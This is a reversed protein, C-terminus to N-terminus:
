IKAAKGRNCDRCLTQLNMYESNGGKSIPIIHDVELKVGDKVSRGCLCCKFGDRRMVNYRVTPTVFARENKRRIIEDTEEYKIQKQENIEEISMRIQEEYFVCKREHVNRGKPSVYSIVCTIQYSPCLFSRKEQWVLQKEISVYEHFIVNVSNSCEITASSKLLSFKRLYEKAIRRNKELLNLMVTTERKHDALYSKLLDEFLAHDFKSKSKVVRRITKCCLGKDISILETSNNLNRVQKLWVSSNSVANRKRQIERDREQQEKLKKSEEAANRKRLAELYQTKKLKNILIGVVAYGLLLIAFIIIPIWKLLDDM